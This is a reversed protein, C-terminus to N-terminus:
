SNPNTANIGLAGIGLADMELSDIELSDIGLADTDPKGDSAAPSEPSPLQNAHQFGASRKAIAPM